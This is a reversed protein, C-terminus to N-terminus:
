RRPGRQKRGARKGKCSNKVVPTFDYTKGNQADFLATARNTSRCLNVSNELLGKKGGQMELVFKSVPADPVGEFTTRIGGRVSDIRGVLDVDIQGHLAAVLDPLPHNSSRLYVPGELPTDLLPTFARAKGYVSGPPCGAGGGAGATFQVRTCITRIHSQDLFESHPLAVSAKAINAGAPPMTLTARLAPNKSRKTGGKLKLTLKPKFGLSGCGGVQFRQNLAAVQGFPTTAGGTIAMPDCSTPNLTFSPRDLKVAVSRLDLPIGEIIQPFPDSVAHIRATEPDVNLAARVVVVGLDFPGAIAPTIVAMSLPAGKYPGALYATGQVYYPTPGAGAAVNVSGLASSSPCSPSQREVIGENPKSRSAAQADGRSLKLVFPSYAGAQPSVTGASFAPASPLAAPDTPCPGPAPAAASQFSSTPHADAGEPSSWPVLDSTTTHTACTPPTILSARAGPFLHVRIDELPLEPNEEFRATLQGTKPDAEIRGGLKAVVGSREDEVALYIALLSGFPNDFPAALYVSGGLPRPIAKGTEPDTALKTGEEEYQAILPSTVELTGLKAADPCSNPDRSFHLVGAEDEGDFGVQDESCAALGAAQSPNVAMGQPFTITADKLAATSRSGLETDQPQHLDFDLGSPSDTLNTTPQASITPEFALQNCGSLSVPNGQLDASGYTSKEFVGPEEWSDARVESTLQSGCHTPMTLFATKQPDVPCSAGPPLHFCDGRSEDHAAASPDGWIQAQLGFIPQTALALVDRTTTEVGYDGDSRVGAIVHAYIGVGAVNTALEAISGPPPVMNYLPSTFVGNAGVGGVLTTVDNTGIQSADPCGGSTLQVETCLVPTAAPNGLLGRPEEVNFDRPHGSNTIGDGPNKTPFAFAITQQYPHAGALTTPTGDENTVPAQFGPLFGFPVPEAQVRTPFTRSVAQAAGGGSVTAETDFTGEPALVEVSIQVILEQGPAVSGGTECSVTPSSVTCAGGVGLVAATPVLGAPLTTEIKTAGSSPAGGLNTAVVIYEPQPSFGPAFSAPLPTITLGWAPAPDAAAAGPLLAAASLCLALASLAAKRARM